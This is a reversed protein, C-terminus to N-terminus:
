IILLLLGITIRSIRSCYCDDGGIDVRFAGSYHVEGRKYAKYWYRWFEACFSLILPHCSYLCTTLHQPCDPAGVSMLICRQLPVSFSLVIHWGRAWSCIWSGAVSRWLCHSRRSYLDFSHSHATPYRSLPRLSQEPSYKASLIGMQGGVRTLLRRRRSQM